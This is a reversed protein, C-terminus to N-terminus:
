PFIDPVVTRDCVHLQLHEEFRCLLNAIVIHAIPGVNVRKRRVSTGYTMVFLRKPASGVYQVDNRFKKKKFTRM